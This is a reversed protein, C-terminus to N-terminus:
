RQQRPAEIGSEGGRHMSSLGDRKRPRKRRMLVLERVSNLQRRSLPEVDTSRRRRRFFSFKLDSVDGPGGRVAVEPRSRRSLPPALRLSTSLAGGSSSSSSTSCVGRASSAHLLRMTLLFPFFLGSFFFFFFLLTKEFFFEGVFGGEIKKKEEGNRPNKKKPSKSFFPVPPNM